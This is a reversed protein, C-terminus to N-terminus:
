VCSSIELPVSGFRALKAIVRSVSLSIGYMLAACFTFPLMRKQPLGHVGGVQIFDLGYWDPFM